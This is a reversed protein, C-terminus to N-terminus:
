GHAVVDISATALSSDVYNGLIEHDITKPLFIRVFPLFTVFDKRETLIEGRRDGKRSM